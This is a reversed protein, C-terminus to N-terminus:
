EISGAWYHEDWTTSDWYFLDAPAIDASELILRVGGSKADRLFSILAKQLVTDVEIGTVRVLITAHNQRLMQISADDDFIILEAINILEPITGNSRNAAIRARIYRRYTEDELGNRSQGVIYGLVDLGIGFATDLRRLTFLDWWADELKQWPELFISLFDEFNTKGKLQEPLRDLGQQVHDTIKETTM